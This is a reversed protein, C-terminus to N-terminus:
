VVVRVKKRRRVYELVYQLQTQAEAERAIALLRIMLLYLSYVALTKCFVSKLVARFCDMERLRSREDM